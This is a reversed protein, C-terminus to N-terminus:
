GSLENQHQRDSINDTSRYIKYLEFLYDHEHGAKKEGSYEFIGTIFIIIPM